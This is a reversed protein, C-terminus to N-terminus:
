FRKPQCKYWTNEDKKGGFSMVLVVIDSECNKPISYLSM